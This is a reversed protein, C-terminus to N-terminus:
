ILRIGVTLCIRFMSRLCSPLFRGCFDPTFAFPCAVLNPIYRGVLRDFDIDDPLRELLVSRFDEVGSRLRSSHFPVDIGPILMFPAKGGAAAARAAADKELAAIGADTGAVAYQAGALNFNVIELFEGSDASVQSIYEAVHADDVGFQNSRLAGMKYGSRGSGDRPVLNHMTSGRQFVIGLVTELSMMGGYASLATYEGLSHGAFYAGAVLVGAEALRSTQAFAVATLAVQTFQTM